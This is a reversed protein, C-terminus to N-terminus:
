RGFKIQTFSETRCVAYGMDKLKQICSYSLVLDGIVEFRGNRIARDVLEMVVQMENSLDNSNYKYSKERAESATLEAYIPKCSEQRRM